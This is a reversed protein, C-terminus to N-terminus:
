PVHKWTRRIVIHRVTTKNIGFMRGVSVHTHGRAVMSRIEIVQSETVKSNPSDNGRLVPFSNCLGTRHAHKNNDARTCWEFNGPANHHKDGDDHNICPLNSDNPLFLIGIVRHLYVMSKKQDRGGEANFGLYGCDMEVIKKLRGTKKNRVRCRSSFEYLDEWGPVPYWEEFDM